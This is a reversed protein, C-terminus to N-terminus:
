GEGAKGLRGEIRLLSDRIERLVADTGEDSRGARAGGTGGHASVVVDRQDLVADRFAPADVVGTLVADGSGQPSSQGATEV